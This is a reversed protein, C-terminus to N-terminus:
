DRKLDFNIENPKPEVKATLPTKREDSYILPIRDAAPVSSAAAAAPPAGDPTPEPEKATEQFIIVKFEGPMSGDSETYTGLAYSGDPKIVGGATKGAQESTPVFSIAGGGVMPKGAFTVQGKVPYVKVQGSPTCGLTLSSIVLTLAAFRTQMMSM